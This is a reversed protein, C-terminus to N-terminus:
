KNIISDGGTVVAPDARMMGLFSSYYFSFCLKLFRLFVSFKGKIDKVNYARGCFSKWEECAEYSHPMEDLDFTGEGALM